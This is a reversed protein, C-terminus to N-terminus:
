TSSSLRSIPNIQRQLNRERWFRRQPLLVTSGRGAGDEPKISCNRLWRRKPAALHFLESNCSRNWMGPKWRHLRVTSFNRGHSPARPWCKAALWAGVEHAQRSGKVLLGILYNTDLHIM